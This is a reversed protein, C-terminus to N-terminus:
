PAAWHIHKVVFWVIEGLKWLGLPFFLGGIMLAPFVGDLIKGDM